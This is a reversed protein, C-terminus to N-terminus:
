IKVCSIKVNCKVIVQKQCFQLFALHANTKRYDIEIVKVQVQLNKMLIFNKEAVTCPVGNRILSM